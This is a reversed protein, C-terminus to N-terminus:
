STGGQLSIFMPLTSLPYLYKNRNIGPAVVCPKGDYGLWRYDLILGAM